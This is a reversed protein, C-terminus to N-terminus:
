RKLKKVEEAVDCLEQYWQEVFRRILHERLFQYLHLHIQQGKKIGSECIECRHYNLGVSGDSFQKERVPYLACSM